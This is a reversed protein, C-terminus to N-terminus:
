ECTVVVPADDEDEESLNAFNWGYKESLKKKLHLVKQTLPKNSPAYLLITKFLDRVKNFLFNDEFLIDAFTDETM